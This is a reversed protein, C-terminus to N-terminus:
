HSTRDTPHREQHRAAELLQTTIRTVAALEAECKTLRTRLSEIKESDSLDDWASM